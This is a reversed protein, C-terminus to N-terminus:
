ISIFCCRTFTIKAHPFLSPTCQAHVFLSEVDFVFLDTKTLFDIEYLITNFGKKTCRGISNSISFLSFAAAVSDRGLIVACLGDDFQNEWKMNRNMQNMQNTHETHTTSNQKNEYNIGIISSPNINAKLLYFHINCLLSVSHIFSLLYSAILLYHVFFPHHAESYQSPM